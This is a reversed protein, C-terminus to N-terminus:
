EEIDWAEWKRIILGGPVETFIVKEKKGAVGKNVKYGITLVGLFWKISM